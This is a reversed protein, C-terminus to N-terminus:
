KQKRGTTSLRSAIHQGDLSEAAAKAATQASFVQQLADSAVEGLAQSFSINKAARQVPAFLSRFGDVCQRGCDKELAKEVRTVLSSDAPVIKAHAAPAHLAFSYLCLCMSVIREM